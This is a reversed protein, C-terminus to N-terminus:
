KYIKGTKSDVLIIRGYPEFGRLWLVRKVEAIAEKLREKEKREMRRLARQATTDRYHEGNYGNM